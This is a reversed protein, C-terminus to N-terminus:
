AAVVAAWPSAIFAAGEAGQAALGRGPRNMVLNPCAYPAPYVGAEAITVPHRAAIAAIAAGLRPDCAVTGGSADLRPQHAAADADMAFDVAFSVLQCVAPVIKRGGSAGLALWGRGDRTVITPCMNSLPRRAPALSNPRGPVPDFWAIANNMLIGTSPLMVGSGFLYFLTQTLAVLTGDRDIVTIHTTCGAPSTSAGMMTLREDYAAALADAYAAYAAADPTAGPQWAALRDLAALLTPGGTLGPAVHVEDGRYAATAAPEVSARYGALDDGTLSGRAAMDAAISRAIGGQYFDRPGHLALRRYTEALRGLSLRTPAAIEAPVPAHGNPLFVRRSEEYAALLPAETAIRLTAYWDIAMGREALEVAPRIADVWSLTGFRELALALGAVLGPVGVADYGKINREGEVEPWGFGDPAVGGTLRFRAPDLRAPSPMPFAVCWTARETPRRILMYGGGGLGSMWPEVAGIALGTAVAADVANGGARLVAAGVEAAERHQSAVLGDRGAVAPKRIQWQETAM